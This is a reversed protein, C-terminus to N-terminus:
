CNDRQMHVRNFNIQNQFLSSVSEISMIHIERGFIELTYEYNNLNGSCLKLIGQFGFLKYQEWRDRLM